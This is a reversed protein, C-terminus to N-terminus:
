LLGLGELAKLIKSGLLTNNKIEICATNWTYTKGDIVVIIDGRLDEPIEAYTRLFQERKDSM